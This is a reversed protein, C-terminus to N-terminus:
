RLITMFILTEEARVFILPAYISETSRFSETTAHLIITERLKSKYAYHVNGWERFRYRFQKNKKEDFVCKM